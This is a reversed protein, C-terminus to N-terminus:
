RALCRAPVVVACAYAVGQSAPNCREEYGPLDKWVDEGLILRPHEHMAPQEEVWPARGRREVAVGEMM